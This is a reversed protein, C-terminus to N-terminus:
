RRATARSRTTSSSASRTRPTVQATLRLATVTRSSPTARRSIDSGSRLDVRECQRREQQRVDRPHRRALRLRPLQRLVVAQRSTIPGGVSAQVDWNKYLAASRTLGFARLADDINNGQSWEGATSFFGSGSFTNGGTKPIFNVLTGGVRPERRARGLADAANGALQRHRHHLGVRRRRQVGLRRQPRGGYARGENGRGGHSYFIRM